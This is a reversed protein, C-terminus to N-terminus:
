EPLPLFLLQPQRPLEEIYSRVHRVMEPSLRKAEQLYALATMASGPLSAREFLSVLASCKAVAEDFASTTVLVEVADLAVLGSQVFMERGSFALEIRRLRDLAEVFKHTQMQIRALGWEAHLRDTELGLEDLLRLTQLFWTAAADLEGLSVSCHAINNFVHAVGRTDGEQQLPKILEMFMERALAYDGRDHRIGAAVMQAHSRRRTDGYLTFTESCGATLALAEDLKEQQWLVTARVYEVTAILHTLAPYPAAAGIAADLEALAEDFRGLRVLANACEKHARATLDAVVQPPYDIKSLSLAARVAEQALALAEAPKAALTEQASALRRQVGGADDGFNKTTSLSQQLDLLEAMAIVRDSDFNMERIPLELASDNWVADDSLGALLSEIEGASARCEECERVHAAVENSAEGLGFAILTEEQYHTNM